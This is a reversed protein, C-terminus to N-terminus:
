SPPQIMGSETYRVSSDWLLWESIGADYTARVQERVYEARDPYGLRIPWNSDELWPVVRARRGETAELWVELTASIIDYPQMLPNSVDYEGPGWHSPYIMPSVYDLVDALREVDQGVESPRDASVGYLSAGHIAGYPALREDAERAFAFIEDEVSGELGPISMKDLSGDPKRLYDWLIHDVGMAAAEEAIAINYEKVDDNAFNAFGAYRGTYIANGDAEQIAYDPQDNAWAWPALVPDAFAVIRGVVPIGLGHLQEIAAELDIGCDPDDSGIRQALENETDFGIKGTEDKLDLQIANIRGAEIAELVPERLSPSAWGCFSVHVTRLEDVRARSPVTVLRELEDDTRNGAADMAAVALRGEPPSDLEVEFTGDEGAAVEADGITVTAGPESSGTITVPEGAVLGGEPVSVDLEPPTADVQIQWRGLLEADTDNDEDLASAPDVDAVEVEGPDSGPSGGDADDGDGDETTDRLPLRVVAIDHEGDPLEGPAWTWGTDALAEVEDTIDEGGLLLRVDALHLIADTDLEDPDTADTRLTAEVSVEVDGVQEANFLAGDEPGSVELDREALPQEEACAALALVATALVAVVSWRTRNTV